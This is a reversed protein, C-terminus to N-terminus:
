NGNIIKELYCLTTKENLQHEKYIKYGLKNYIYLNRTSKSGTFLEFRNLHSFVKEIENMLKTGIGRNQYEESVILFGIYCTGNGEYARVSGIIKGDEVVKLFTHTDFQRKIDRLTQTLPPISYDDNLKAESVYAAKQLKLIDEADEVIARLIEM